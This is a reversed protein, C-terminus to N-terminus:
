KGANEKALKEKEEDDQEPEWELSDTKFTDNPFVVGWYVIFKKARIPDSTKLKKLIPHVYGEAQKFPGESSIYAMDDDPYGITWTGKQFSIFGGKVELCFIGFDTFVVFDAEAWPKKKHTSMGVSQLAIYPKKSFCNILKERVIREGRNTNEINIEPRIEM